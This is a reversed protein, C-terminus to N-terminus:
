CLNHLRESMYQLDEGAGSSKMSIRPNDASSLQGFRVVSPSTVKTIQERIEVQM